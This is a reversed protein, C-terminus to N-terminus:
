LFTTSFKFQLVGGNPMKMTSPQGRTGAPQGRTGAPQGRTGAPQGRTGAPQGRTGAPQGRTGAPQGRTGAPQGRTGAPQGRTGAPQGQTGAPQGRNDPSRHKWRYMPASTISCVVCNDCCMPQLIAKKQIPKGLSKVWMGSSTTSFHCLLGASLASCVRM